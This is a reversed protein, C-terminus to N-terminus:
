TTELREGVSATQEYNGVGAGSPCNTRVAERSHPNPHYLLHPIEQFETHSDSGRSYSHEM